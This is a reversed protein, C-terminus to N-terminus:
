TVLFQGMMGGDEHELIHCHFMYPVKDDSYYKFPVMIYAVEMPSVMVTDKFGQESPFPKRRNIALIKFQTNHIHFPHAIPSRNIIKWIEFSNKKAVGDIRNMDMSQANIFFNNYPNAGSMMGIGMRMQLLMDRVGTAENPNWIPHKILTSLIKLNSTKANKSKIKILDFEADYGMQATMMDMMGMSQNLAGKFSKLIIDKGDSLDVIIEVRQAPALRIRNLHVPKELLGGDSGILAFKRKDSFGLLYTRANSGNLIRFRTLRKKAKLTPAIVGNVLVYNGHIGTMNEVPSNVYRFSGDTNFNRDQLVIPIDDVGYENPLNLSDSEDDDIIFLGALGKYVQEGTKHLLHSHYWLMSARNKIIFEPKWLAENKIVQHPGGDMKAPLEFGHWHITSDYGLSNKINFKVFEGKKARLAPGLFPGNIGITSTKLGKFFEMEGKQLTLNFVRKGGIVRGEYLPPIVFDRDEKFNDYSYLNDAGLFAVELSGIAGAILFNRRKM